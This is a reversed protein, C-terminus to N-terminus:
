GVTKGSKKKSYREIKSYACGCYKQRYLGLKKSEDIGEQWLPRFDEYFFIIGYKRAFEIGSRKISEHDQYRSYLLSSTFGDFGRESAERATAELRESYCYECRKGFPPVGDAVGTHGRVGKVFSMPSYAEDYIVNLELYGALAKVAALRKKFEELPHINPNHFFGWVEATDGLNKKLPMISCPGCCIHVLIKPRAGTPAAAQSLNLM